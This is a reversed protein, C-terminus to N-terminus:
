AELGVWKMSRDWVEQCLRDDTAPPFPSALRCEDYYKGTEDSLGPDTACYLTTQAGEENTIMRLKMLPRIPWPVKRWVDSAVVGPHLSYTTVGSGELRRGLERAFFINAVKSECYEPFGSWTSTPREKRDLRVGDVKRHGKSAVIVIRAPASEKIRDLLLHTLLFHGLHNVGWALEFGDKTLGKTGAIGANAIFLHLPLDRALFTEACSRVSDLSGLDLPVYEVKDNGTAARIEAVVPETREASRCAMVVHAGAQALEHATVRGIGTNAGTILVVRGEM